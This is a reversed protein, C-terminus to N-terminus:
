TRVVNENGKNTVCAACFCCFYFQSRFGIQILEKGYILIALHFASKLRLINVLRNFLSM